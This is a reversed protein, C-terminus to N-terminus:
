IEDLISKINYRFIKENFYAVGYMIGNKEDITISQLYDPVKIKCLPEGKWNFIRIETPIFKKAYESELQNYYLCYIYSDSAFADQYYVKVNKDVDEEKARLYEEIMRKPFEKGEIISNELNGESDFVDIRNFMRHMASAFKTRDPKMTLISIYLSNYRYFLFDLDNNNNKIKPFVPVTKIISDLIPNYIQLRNMHPTTNASRGVVKASDIYFVTFFKSQPRLQFEKDVITKNKDISETVNIQSLKYTNTGRVWIKIQNNEKVFNNYWLGGPFENPGNGKRAIKTILKLTKPNYVAFYYNDDRLEALLLTDIVNLNCVEIDKKLIEEGKVTFKKDFNLYTNKRKYM